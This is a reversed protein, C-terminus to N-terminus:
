RASQSIWSRHASNPAEPSDPAEMQQDPQAPQDPQYPQEPLREVRFLGSLRRNAAGAQELLQTRRSGEAEAPAADSSGTSFYRESSM